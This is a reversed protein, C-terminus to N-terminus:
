PTPKLKEEFDSRSAELTESCKRWVKKREKPNLPALLDIVNDSGTPQSVARAISDLETPTTKKVMHTVESLSGALVTVDRASKSPGAPAAAHRVNRGTTLASPM